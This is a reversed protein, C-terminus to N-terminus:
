LLDDPSRRDALQSMVKRTKEAAVKVSSDMAEVTEMSPNVLSVIM